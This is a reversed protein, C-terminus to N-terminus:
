FTGDKVCYSGQVGPPGLDLIPFCSFGEPCTCLDAGDDSACRCTCYVRAEVEARSACEPVPTDECLQTPDGQLRFMICANGQCQSSQTEVYAENSNGGGEPIQEPLCAEGVVFPKNNSGSDLACASLCVVLAFVLPLSSRATPMPPTYGTMVATTMATSDVREM